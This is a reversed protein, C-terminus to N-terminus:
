GNRWEYLNGTNLPNTPDNPDDKLWLSFPRPNDPPALSVYVMRSNTPPRSVLDSFSGGATPVQLTWEPFDQYSFTKPDASNVWRVRVTYWATDHMDTNPALNVTFTGNSAPIVKVPETAFLAGAKRNPANLTFYLVPSKGALHGLGVDWLTGTVEAM